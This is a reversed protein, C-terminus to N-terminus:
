RSIGFFEKLDAQEGEPHWGLKNGGRQLEHIRRLLQRGRVNPLEQYSVFISKERKKGFNEEYDWCEMGFGEVSVTGPNVNEYKLESEM